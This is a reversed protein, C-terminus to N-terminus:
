MKKMLARRTGDILALGIQAWNFSNVVKQVGSSVLNVVSFSEKIENVITGLVQAQAQLEADVMARAQELERYSNIRMKM